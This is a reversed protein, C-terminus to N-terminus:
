RWYTSSHFSPTKVRPKWGLERWALDIVPRRKQPDDEVSPKHVIGSNAGTMKMVISAFDLVTREEPNGLNVPMSYNSNMLALLGDILDSVYQFSRTQHGDGYVTLPRGALAQTVFNSVVRGDNMHMRPGYTNFIRAIRVEIGAYEHYARSLSEAIRKGEDYCSRPGTSFWLWAYM